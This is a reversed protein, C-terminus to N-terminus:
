YVMEWIRRFLARLRALLGTLATKIDKTLSIRWNPPNADVPRGPQIDWVQDPRLIATTEAPGIYDTGRPCGYQYVDCAPKHLGGSAAGCTSCSAAKFRYVRGNALEKVRNGEADLLQLNHPRDNLSDDDIHDVQYGDPILKENHLAWAVRNAYVRRGRVWIRKRTSSKNSPNLFTCSRWVVPDTARGHKDRSTLIDGTEYDIKWLGSSLVYALAESDRTKMKM